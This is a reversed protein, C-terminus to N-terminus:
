MPEAWFGPGPSPSAIPAVERAPCILASRSALEGAKTMGFPVKTHARPEAPAIEAGDNAKTTIAREPERRLGLPLRPQDQPVIKPFDSNEHGSLCITQTEITLARTGSAPAVSM